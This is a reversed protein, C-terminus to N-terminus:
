PVSKLLILIGIVADDWLKTPEQEEETVSTWCLPDSSHGAFKGKDAKKAPSRDTLM